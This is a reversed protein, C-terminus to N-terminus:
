NADAGPVQLKCLSASSGSSLIWFAPYVPKNFPFVFSHFPHAEGAVNYFTATGAECDLLVGIRKPNPNVLVSESSNHWASLKGAFWEVCWSRSNRGLRSALGEREIGAYALGVGSFNNSSLKVEWYHRGRSFGKSALVQSCSVFREPGDPYKAPEDLMSAQTLTENLAIRKHATKPDLTLITGYKLLESRPIASTIDLPIDTTGAAEKPTGQMLDETSHAPHSKGANGETAQAAKQKQPKKKPGPKPQAGAGTWQQKTQHGEMFPIPLFPHPRYPPGMHPPGMLPPGTHPPGMYPGQPHQHPSWGPQPEMHPGQFPQLLSRTPQRGSSRSRPPKKQKPSSKTEESELQSGTSGSSAATSGPAATEGPRLLLLRAEVPQKLMETLHEKLLASFAQTATVSKSDLTLRPAFPEFNAAPPLDFSAQLFALTHNQSLLGHVEEKAKSMNKVNESFKKAQAKLKSQCSQLERDVATLSEREERALMDQIQQYEVSLAMKKNTASDKLKNQLDDMQRLVNENKTIKGDLVDLKARLDSETLNRREEPSIFPCGKHVQQLCLSCIPRSHQSCFLEMLKHHDPCIRESLDGLPRSLQHLRFAPNDRHPRLHEECYSAMCTLCTQSAEAEMCADCRVVDDDEEEEQQQQEARPPAQSESKRLTFSQVVSSLVTNKKLEPRTAFHTRCQPCSYSDKWAALLCGQCFNHGCPITVPCDFPSLCISCTLEDELGILSLPGAHVDAM